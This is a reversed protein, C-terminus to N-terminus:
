ITGTLRTLDGVKRGEMIWEVVQPADPDLANSGVEGFPTGNWALGDTTLYIPQTAHFFIGIEKGAAFVIRDARDILPM